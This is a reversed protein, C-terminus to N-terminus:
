PKVYNEGASLQLRQRRRSRTVSAGCALCTPRRHRKAKNKTEGREKKERPRAVARALGRKTKASTPHQHLM